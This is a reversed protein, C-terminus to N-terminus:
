RFTPRAIGLLRWAAELDPAIPIADHGERERYAAYQRSLNLGLGGTAVFVLKRGPLVPGASARDILQELPVEIATVRRLDVVANELAETAAIPRLLRDLDAIDQTELRDTFEVLLVTHTRDIAISFVEL